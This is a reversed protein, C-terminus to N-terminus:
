GLLHGAQALLARRGGVLEEGGTTIDGGGFLRRPNAALNEFLRQPESREFAQEVVRRDAFDHDVAVSVDVHLPAAADFSRRLAEDVVPLEAEDDFADDGRKPAPECLG